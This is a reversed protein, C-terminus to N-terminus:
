QAEQTIRRNPYHGNHIVTYRYAAAFAELPSDIATLHKGLREYDELSDLPM